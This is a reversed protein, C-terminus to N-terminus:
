TTHFLRDIGDLSKTEGPFAPTRKAHTAWDKFLPHDCGLLGLSQM